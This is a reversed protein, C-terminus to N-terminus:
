KNDRDKILQEAFADAHKRAEPSLAAYDEPTFKKEVTRELGLNGNVELKKKQLRPLRGEALRFIYNTFDRDRAALVPNPSEHGDKDVAMIRERDQLIDLGYELLTEAGIIKAAEVHERFPILKEELDDAHNSSKCLWRRVTSASPMDRSKCIEETSKGEM